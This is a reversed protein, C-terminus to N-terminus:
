ICTEFMKILGWDLLALMLFHTGSTLSQATFYCFRFCSVAKWLFSLVSTIFFELLLIRLIALYLFVLVFQFNGFFPWCNSCLVIYLAVFFDFKDSYLM